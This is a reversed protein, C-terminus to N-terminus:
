EGGTRICRLDSSIDPLPYFGVPRESTNGPMIMNQIKPYALWKIIIKNPIDM